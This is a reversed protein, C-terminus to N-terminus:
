TNPEGHHFQWFLEPLPENAMPALAALRARQPHAKLRPSCRGAASRRRTPNPLAEASGVERREPQGAAIDDIGTQSVERRFRNARFAQDHRQGRRSKTTFAHRDARYVGIRLISEVLQQRGPCPVQRMRTVGGIQLLDRAEGISTSERSPLPCTMRSLSVRSDKCARM